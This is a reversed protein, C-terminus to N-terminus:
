ANNKKACGCKDGCKCEAKKECGCSESKCDAKKKAEAPCQALSASVMFTAALLALVVRM